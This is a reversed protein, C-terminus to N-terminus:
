SEASLIGVNKFCSYAHSITKRIYAYIQHIGLRRFCHQELLFLAMQAFGQRRFSPHIVIGVEARNHRPDFQFLDIIGAIQKSQTEILLRLQHDAYLDNQNESIYKKLQYRSYPATTNGMDWLEEDNEFALMVDIDEPEPARLTIKQNQLRYTNM